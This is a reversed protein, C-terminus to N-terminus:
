TFVTLADVFLLANSTLNLAHVTICFFTDTVSSRSARLGGMQQRSLFCFEFPRDGQGNLASLVQPKQTSESIMGLVLFVAALVGHVEWDGLDEVGQPLSGARPATRFALMQTVIQLPLATKGFLSM